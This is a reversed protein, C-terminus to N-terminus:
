GTDAPVVIAGAGVFRRRAVANHLELVVSAFGERGDGLAFPSPCRASASQRKRRFPATICPRTSPRPITLEDVLAVEACHVFGDLRDIDTLPPLVDDGNGFDLAIPLVGDLRSRLEELTEPSRGAAVVRHGAASLTETVAQGVEGTAGTVVVTMSM